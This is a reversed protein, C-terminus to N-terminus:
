KVSIIPITKNSYNCERFKKIDNWTLWHFCHDITKSYGILLKIFYIKNFWCPFFILLCKWLSQRITYHKSLNEKVGIKKICQKYGQLRNFASWVLWPSQSFLPKFGKNVKNVTWCILAGCLSKKVEFKSVFNHFLTKIVKTGNKLHFKEDQSWSLEKVHHALGFQTRELVIKETVTVKKKLCRYWFEPVSFLYIKILAKLHACVQCTKSKDIGIYKAEFNPNKLTM